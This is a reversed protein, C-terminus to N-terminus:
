DKDKYLRDALSKSEPEADLAMDTIQLDVSRTVGDSDTSEYENVSVVSVQAVLRLKDQVRPLAKLGLKELAEDDLHLQLGYPYRPADGPEPSADKEKARPKEMNILDAM